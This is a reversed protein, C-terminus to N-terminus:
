FSPPPPCNQEHGALDANVPSLPEVPRTVTVPTLAGVRNHTGPLHNMLMALLGLPRSGKNRAYGYGNPLSM